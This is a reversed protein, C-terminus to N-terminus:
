PASSQAAELEAALAVLREEGNDPGVLQVSLPLGDTGTGLPVAAAPFGTVNWMATYAVPGSAALLTRVAGKGAITDADGPRDPVTPTLLVDVDRWVRDLTRAIIEGKKEAWRHVPQLVWAGLRVVTRTRRELRAPHEVEAAESRIGAFFQPIFSATPDPYAPDYDIVTHGAARLLDAARAVAVAHDPHLTGTKAPPTLSVGIRLRPGDAAGTVAEALSGIPGAHFNDTDVTGAILDYVLASDRVSRTLPGTTGLAHWLHANPSASVRGRQPKLGFLGCHASPIRISGGGDGGLALPVLGAAVAAASGGSSGGPTRTQDFPNRTIGYGTTQTYPWAGFEPMRTVGIIIAGADRLRRVVLSDDSAPTSNARTGFTTVVGKVQIEAKIAVPVGHLPGRHDPTLRDLAEATALAEEALVVSFANLDRDLLAIRNLAARIGQVAGGTRVSDGGAASDSVSDTLAIVQDRWDHADLTHWPIGTLDSSNDSHTM